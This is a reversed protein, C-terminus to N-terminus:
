FAQGISLYFQFADDKRRPNLPVGVDFRIPGVPSFYRVGAGAAGQIRDFAFYPDESVAGAEVFLAGGIDGWVRARLEAGLEVASLGGTPDDDSDLPGISREGYGRVSGGGGSYLRRGSPVDSIDQALISALRARGALVYRDESDLAYYRSTRTDIRWFLPSSDGDTIGVFPTVDARFRWGQTPNLFDTTGDYNAFLPLGLLLFNQLSGDERSRIAELLAGAGVVWRRQIQREIGGTLTIAREDIADDDINRIGAGFTLAQQNRRFQPIRLRSELRQEDLAAFGEVLITENSGFLNRHEFTSRLAPGRDSGFRAGATVTRRPGEELSVIIPVAEGEPPEEPPRATGFGFLNTAIIDRQFDRVQREDYVEGPSWTIYTRLYSERVRDLGEFRTEGFVFPTGAAIDTTVEITAADLDAVADRARREAYPRGTRRLWAVAAAEADLIAQAEATAGVPSGLSAAGPLNPPVGGDEIVRFMHSALVFPPGPELTVVIEARPREGDDVEVPTIEYTLGGQYYGFARLVRQAIAEDGIARRRLFALSQAGDDQQRFLALSERMLADIEPTPAGELTVDYDLATEPREFTLPAGADRRACASLSLALSILVALARGTARQRQGTM